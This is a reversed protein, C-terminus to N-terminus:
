PSFRFVCRKTSAQGWLGMCIHGWLGMCIHGWLWMCTHGWLGAGKRCSTGMYFGFGVGM